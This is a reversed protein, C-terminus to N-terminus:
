RLSIACGTEQKGTSKEPGCLSADTRVRQSQGEGERGFAGLYFHILPIGRKGFFNKCKLPSSINHFILYSHIVFMM